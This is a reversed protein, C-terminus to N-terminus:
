AKPTRKKKKLKKGLSSITSQLGKRTGEMDRDPTLKSLALEYVSLAKEDDGRETYLRGLETSLAVPELRDHDSPRARELNAIAQDLTVKLYDRARAVGIGAWVSHPNLELARKYERAARQLYNQDNEGWLILTAALVQHTKPNQPELEVAKEALQLSLLEKEYGKETLEGWDVCSYIAGATKMLLEVNGPDKELVHLCIEVARDPGYDPEKFLRDACKLLDAENMPARQAEEGRLAPGANVPQRSEGARSLMITHPTL